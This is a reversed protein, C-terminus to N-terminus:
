LRTIVLMKKQMSIKVGDILFLLFISKEKDVLFLNTYDNFLEYM